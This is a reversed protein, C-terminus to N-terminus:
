GSTGAPRQLDHLADRTDQSQQGNNRRCVVLSSLRTGTIRRSRCRREGAQEQAQEAQAAAPASTEVPQTAPAGAAVQFLTVLLIDFM